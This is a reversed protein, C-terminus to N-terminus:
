DLRVRMRLRDPRLTILPQLGPVGDALELTARRAMTALLLHAEMQAFHAGICVRPGSGFPMYASRPLAAEREPTFRDPDFREPEPFLDERRHMGYVNVAITMGKPVQVDGIDVDREAVRGVAYVPPYLRMSEQIIRLTLPLKELTAYTPSSEGLAILLEQRLRAMTEPSQALLLWTWSLLNATTEHGAFFLTMVEDRVEVDTMSRGDDEDRAGVLLSLADGGTAGKRRRETILQAILADVSAIARENRLRSPTPLALPLPVFRATETSAQANAVGLAHGVWDADATVDVDMLTQGVIALTLEMMEDTVNVVAGDTWRNLTTEGHQVMADAWQSVVRPSFLPAMLKRQRRHLEHESTLLGDGLLRRAFRALTRSKVMADAHDVLVQRALAADTVVLVDLWGLRIRALPGAAAADAFVRMRARRFDLLQGLIPL